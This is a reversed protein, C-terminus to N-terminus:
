NINFGNTLTYSLGNPNTVIVNVLGLPLGTPPVGLPPVTTTISLPHVTPSKNVVEGTTPNIFTVTAGPEFLAGTITVSTGPAGSTPSISHIWPNALCNPSVVFNQCFTGVENQPTDFTCASYYNTTKAVPAVWFFEFDEVKSNYTYNTNKNASKLPPFSPSQIPYVNPYLQSIKLTPELTDLKSGPFEKPCQFGFPIFPLNPYCELLPTEYFCGAAAASYEPSIQHLTQVSSKNGNVPDFNGVLVTTDIAMDTFADTNTTISSPGAFKLSLVDGAIPALTFLDIKWVLCTTPSTSPYTATCPVGNPIAPSDTFDSLPNVPSGYLTLPITGIATSNTSTFVSSTLTNGLFQVTNTDLATTLSGTYLKALDPQNAGESGFPVLSQIGSVPSCTFGSPCAVSADFTSSSFTGTAFDLRYFNATASDGLWFNSLTPLPLPTTSCSTSICNSVLPDLALSELTTVGAVPYRAVVSTDPPPTNQNTWQLGDITTGGSAENWPPAAPGSTGFTTLSNVNNNTVLQVYNNSDLILTNSNGVTYVTDSAWMPHSETWTVANDITMGGADNFTPVSGGSTGAETVKQAHTAPDSILTGLTFYQHSAQWVLYGQDTWQLGDITTGGTTENWAPQSPTGSIGATTVEELYSGPDVLLTGPSYPTSAAWTVVPGIDMWVLGDIVMGGDNFTPESGGSTGAVTVKQVHNAPDIIQANLSYPNTAQWTFQVNGSLLGQDAWIVVNDNVTGGTTSFTPASGSGSTGASTAQQVHSNATIVANLAYPTTATWTGPLGRDQWLVTNDMTTSGSENFIPEAGGSTGATVVQQVHGAGDLIVANLSYPTSVTWSGPMGQDTWQLGDTTSGGADNFTPQTPGSTGATIVQQVHGATDVIIASLAFAFNPYWFRQGQDTWTVSADVTMGGDNFTPAVPGSVGATTAQQVHTAGDVVYTNAPISGAYNFSPAWTLIGEDTWVVTNDTTTSGADNFIPQTTGSTGATTVQQVHGAPDVIVAGAPFAFSPHWFEQGQDTWTVANDITRGGTTISFNPPSGGSTGPEVAQQIYGGVDILTNLAFPHNGTYPVVPGQNTWTVANDDTIGLSDNWTPLASGSTGATLVTHPHGAADGVASGLLFVRNAQWAGQDKWVLGDITNGSVPWTPQTPGSTGAVTVTELNGRSDVIYPTGPLVTVAYKTNAMWPPQGQNTWTVANDIVTGGTESFPPKLTGSTGTTAVRQLELSPDLIKSGATFYQTAAQWLPATLGPDSPNTDILLACSGPTGNVALDTCVDVNVGAPDIVGAAVVLITEDSPCTTGKCNPSVNGLAGPPIDKIGYLKVNPGLNAFPTCAGTALTVKQITGGSTVYASSGNASLDMSAVQMPPTIGCATSLSISGLGSASNLPAGTQSLHVITPSGSNTNLAFMEGANNLAVAQIQTGSGNFTTVPTHAVAAGSTPNVSAISYEVINSGTGGADTVLLHMTNNIAAGNTAGAGSLGDSFQDLLTVTPPSGAAVRLMNCTGDGFCVAVDGVHWPIGGDYQAQSTGALGLVLFLVLFLMAAIRVRKIISSHM